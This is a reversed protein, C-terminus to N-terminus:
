KSLSANIEKVGLAEASRTSLRYIVREGSMETWPSQPNERRRLVVDKGKASEVILSDATEDYRIRDSATDYTASSIRANGNAYMRTQLKGDYPNPSQKVDLQHCRLAIAKPPLDVPRDPDM